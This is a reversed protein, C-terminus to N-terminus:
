RRPFKLAFHGTIKLFLPCFAGNQSFVLGGARDLGPRSGPRLLLFLISARCIHYLWQQKEYSNCCYLHQIQCSNRNQILQQLYKDRRIMYDGKKYFEVNKRILLFLASPPPSDTLRRENYNLTLFQLRLVTM